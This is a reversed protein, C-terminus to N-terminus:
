AFAASMATHKSQIESATLADDHFYMGALSGYFDGTEDAVSSNVGLILRGTLPALDPVTLTNILVGNRYVLLSKADVDGVLSFILKTANSSAQSLPYDVSATNASSGFVFAGTTKSVLFRCFGSTGTSYFRFIKQENKVLPTIINFLVRNSNAPIASSNAFGFTITWKSNRMKLDGDLVKRKGAERVFSISDKGGLTAPQTVTPKEGTPVMVTNVTFDGGLTDQLIGTAFIYKISMLVHKIARGIPSIMNNPLALRQSKFSINPIKLGKM